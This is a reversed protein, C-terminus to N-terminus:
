WGLNYADKGLRMAMILGRVNTGQITFVLTGPYTVTSVYSAPNVKLAKCMKVIDGYYMPNIQVNQDTPPDAPWVRKLDPYQGEIPAFNVGGITCTGNKHVELALREVRAGHIKFVAEVTEIPIILELPEGCGETHTAARHGDSATMRLTVGDCKVHVGNVYYRIDSRGACVAVARLAMADLTTTAENM